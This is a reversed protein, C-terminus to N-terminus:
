YNKKHQQNNVKRERTIVRGTTMDRQYFSIDNFVHSEFSNLKTISPDVFQNSNM